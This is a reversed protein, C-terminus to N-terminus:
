ALRARFMLFLGTTLVSGITCSTASSLDSILSRLPRHAECTLCCPYIAHTSLYLLYISLYISLHSLYIPYIDRLCACVSVAARMDAHARVCPM